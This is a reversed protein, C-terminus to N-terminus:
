FPMMVKLTGSHSRINKSFLGDYQLRFDVSGTKTIEVGAGVRGVVDDIPMSTDFANVRPAGRLRASAKWDDQSLFSVGAYLFPRLTAGNDLEARGGIEVMPSLGVTFQKSDDVKLALPNAGSETYGPMRTYSADLDVYPKVYFDEFAFTRAARLRLNFGYVDPNSSLTGQYGTIGISRNMHYSGYGGGLVGSFTWDGEQRKVLAGIYGSDGKGSVRGTSGRLHSNEYAVSAGVFWGPSVEKQGGFQYTVASYHFGSMNDSANHTATRASVTGWFCDREQTLANNGDFSPCSMMANTFRALNAASQAAPALTVGPSLQSVNQRYGSSGERSAMDLQAFLPALDANGGQDWARQLHQAVQQDNGQLGMSPADFNASAVRLRTDKGVKRTEYAFIPSNAVDLSGQTDGQVTLITLEREPLLARAVVQAKGDLTADGLVVMKSSRLAEFDAELSLLGTDLQTFDGAVTLTKFSDTPGVVLLGANNVNAKYSEADLVVGDEKNNLTCAKDSDSASCVIDGKITGSNDITLNHRNAAWMGDYRVAVQSLASVMGGTNITLRNINSSGEAARGDAIWVGSGDGSGGQVNGNVVVYVPGADVSGASQAFIGSAGSGNTQVSGSQNVTVTSAYGGNGIVGAFGGTPGGVIGGGGGISQAVIGHANTGSTKLTGDFDVKVEGSRGSNTYSSGGTPAYAAGRTPNGHHLTQATDGVIGGGGGISQAVMGYAGDGATYLSGTLSLEVKGSSSSSSSNSDGTGVTISGLGDASGTTVIGGGGGISQAVVGIARDGFTNLALGSSVKIDGGQANPANDGFLYGAANVSGAHLDFQQSGTTGASSTSGVIAIGGGGGISQTVLGHALDGTTVITSWSRETIVVKGGNGGHNGLGGATITGRARPSGSAAVGGGGGISQLVIGMAGYGATEVRNGGNNDNLNGNLFATIDGGNGGGGGRGGATLTLKSSSLSSSASSAGGVGGGGGISQLVIGDAYDGSTVTKGGLDIARDSSGLNGGRGGDGGKGGLSAELHYQMGDDDLLSPREDDDGSDGGVAGGLGGGGGVSQILLGDADAGSTTILGRHSLQITGGTGGGPGNRGLAVSASLNVSTPEEGENGGNAGGPEQGETGGVSGSFDFGVQGGQSVGGGGGISQVLAGRAGDGRTVISSNSDISLETNGGNGGTGGSGGLQTTFSFSTDSNFSSGSASGIGGSGGGGGVSQLLIANAYLGSTDIHSGKLTHTANGGNGGSGGSGGLATQITGSFSSGTTGVVTSTASASGGLGGGGGISQVVVGQSNDGYTTVSANNLTSSATGGAGGKGGEGGLAFSIALGISQEPTPMSVTVAKAVSDGGAGGGGGISQVVIGNADGDEAGKALTTISADSVNATATGGAGGAAGSGGVAVAMSFGVGVSLAYAAGGSGGGGGISQAILGHAHDGSTQVGHSGVEITSKGGNGGGEGSGGIVSVGKAGGGDGGGGGISQALMGYASSGYTQLLNGAQKLYVEGGAAGTGGNGGVANIGASTGGTGGGGSISQGVMGHAAVGHTTIATRSDLSVLGSSGGNGGDNTSQSIWDFSYGTNGGVGGMSQGLIGIANDGQTLITGGGAQTSGDGTRVMIAGGNGGDGGKNSSFDILSGSDGHGGGSGGDSRAAIGHSKIGQTSIQTDDYVRIVAAGGNGGNGGDSDNRGKGGTGGWLSLNVGPLYNGQTIISSGKDLQVSILPNSQTSPTSGGNGAPAGSFVEDDSGMGGEGGRGIVVIGGSMSSQDATSPTSDSIVSIKGSNVIRMQGFDGGKGGNDSGDNSSYGAGGQAFMSLGRVGQIIDTGEASVQVTGSNQILSAANPNVNGGNGTYIGGGGGVSEGAIGWVYKGADTASINVSGQNSIVIIDSNGGSGGKQNGTGFTSDDQRGGGGGISAGFIGVGGYPAGRVDISGNNDIYVARGAGGAGGDAGDIGGNGNGGNGAVSAAYIGYMAGKDDWIGPANGTEGSTPLTSATLTAGSNNTIHIIGGTGGPYGNDTDSAASPGSGNEGRLRVMIPAYPSQTASLSASNIVTYEGGSNGTHLGDTDNLFDIVLQQGNGGQSATITCTVPTTSNGPPCNVNGMAPQAMLMGLATMPLAKKKM